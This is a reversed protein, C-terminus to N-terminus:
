EQRALLAAGIMVVLLLVSVAEFPALYTSMLAEGFNAVTPGEVSTQTVPWDAVVVVTLLAAALLTCVVGGAILENRKVDFRVWPSKSTLMVGFILLILTGGAYVILQIVGVFNALLLFFMVAVGGLTVFLYVAMRVINTSICLALGSGLIAASFVYFLLAEVGGAPESRQMVDYGPSGAGAPVEHGFATAAGGLLLAALALTM